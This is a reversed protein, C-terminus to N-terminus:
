NGKVITPQKCQRVRRGKKDKITPRKHRDESVMRKQTWTKKPNSKYRYVCKAYWFVENKRNRELAPKTCCYLIKKKVPGKRRFIRKWDYKSVAEKEVPIEIILDDLEAALELEGQAILDSRIDKLTEKDMNLDKIRITFIPDNNSGM